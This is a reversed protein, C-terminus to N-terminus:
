DKLGARNLGLPQEIGHQQRHLLERCAVRRIIVPREDDAAHMSHMPPSILLWAEAWRGLPEPPGSRPFEPGACEGCTKPLVSAPRAGSRGFSCGTIGAKRQALAASGRISAM